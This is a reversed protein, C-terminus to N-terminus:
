FGICYPLSNKLESRMEELFILFEQNYIEPLIMM